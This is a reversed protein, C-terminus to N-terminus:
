FRKKMYIGDNEELAIGLFSDKLYVSYMKSGEVEKEMFRKLDIRAGNVIAKEFRVPVDIRILDIAEDVSRLAVSPDELARLEEVTIADSLDFKGTATRELFTMHGFCGLALGIDHCLTRIYTGKSCVVDFAIRPFDFNINEISYITRVRAKREIVKGERALDVLKKGNVKLASYMPPIQEIDGLFNPLIAQFMEATVERKSTNVVEGWRDQTTTETGLIMKCRYTKKDDQIFDVIKTAKGVCVPLVGCAMPDLTGTHGVKKMNLTRRVIAVVDHSTMYSPKLINLVGMM